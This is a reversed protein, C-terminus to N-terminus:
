VKITWLRISNDLGTSTMIIMDNRTIDDREEEDTQCFNSKMFVNVSTVQAGHCLRHDIVSRISWGASNVNSEVGTQTAEARTKETSTYLIIRGDEFGAALIWENTEVNGVSCALTTIPTSFGTITAKLIAKNTSEEDIYWIKLTKERGVTFFTRGDPAWAASYVQRIHAKQIDVIDYSPLPIAEPIEVKSTVEATVGNEADQHRSEIEAQFQRASADVIELANTRIKIAEEDNCKRKWLAFHQDKSVTLLYRDASSPHSQPLPPSFVAHSVTQGHALLQQTEDFSRCDWVRLAANKAKRASAASVFLPLYNASSVVQVDYGHSYLKEVEPWLSHALLENEVPPRSYFVQKIGTRLDAPAFQTEISHRPFMVGDPVYDDGSMIPKNSLGLEPQNAALARHYRLNEFLELIKEPSAEVERRQRPLSTARLSGIFPLPAQFVRIVKEEAASVFSHPRLPDNCVSALDWGHVQPRALEHWSSRLTIPTVTSGVTSGTSIQTDDDKHHACWPAFIRSTQDAGMTLIYPINDVFSVTHHVVPANHGSVTLVPVWGDTIEGDENTIPETVTTVNSGDTDHSFISGEKAWMHFCGSYGVGILVDGQPGFKASFFGLTHGGSEGVRIENLWMESGFNTDPKWIMMTKDVSSTLLAMPQTTKQKNGVEHNQTNGMIRPHWFASCVWDEHGILVSELTVSVMRSVANNEPGYTAEDGVALSSGLRYLRGQEGLSSSAIAELAETDAKEEIFPIDSTTSTATTKFRPALLRLAALAPTSVKWLRVCRDQSASALMLTDATYYESIGRLSDEATIGSPTNYQSDMTCFSLSRIWDIHGDLEGLSFFAAPSPMSEPMVSFTSSYSTNNQLINNCALLHIKSSVGALALLVCQAGDYFTYPYLAAAQMLQAAGFSLTQIYTWTETFTADVDAVIDQKNQRAFINVYGSATCYVIITVGNWTLVDIATVQDKDPQNGLKDAPITLTAVQQYSLPRSSAATPRIDANSYGEMGSQFLSWISVTGDYSGSVIQGLFTSNNAAAYKEQTSNSEEPHLSTFDSSINSAVWRVCTVDATHGRLAAVSCNIDRTPNYIIVNSSSGFAILNLKTNWDLVNPERNCGVGLFSSTISPDPFLTSTTAVPTLTVGAASSPKKLM